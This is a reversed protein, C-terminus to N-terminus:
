RRKLYEQFWRNCKLTSDLLDPEILQDAWTGIMDLFSNAKSVALTAEDKNIGLAFATVALFKEPKGNYQNILLIAKKELRWFLRPILPTINDVPFVEQSLIEQLYNIKLLATIFTGEPQSAIDIFEQIAAGNAHGTAKDIYELPLTPPVPVQIDKNQLLTNVQDILAKADANARDTLKNTVEETDADGTVVTSFHTVQASLGSPEDGPLTLEMGSGDQAGTLIFARSGLNDGMVTLTAPTIFKLGDPELLIGSKLDLPVDNSKLDSLATMRITQPQDLADGPIELIWTFGSGDTLFLQQSSGDAPYDLSATKSPDPVFDVKGLSPLSIPVQTIPGDVIRAVGIDDSGEELTVTDSSPTTTTANQAAQTITAQPIAAQPMGCALLLSVMVVIIM